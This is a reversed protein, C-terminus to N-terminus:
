QPQHQKAPLCTSQQMMVIHSGQLGGSQNPLWLMRTVGTLKKWLWGFLNNDCSQSYFYTKQMFIQTSVYNHQNTYIQIQALFNLFEYSLQFYRSQHGLKESGRTTPAWRLCHVVHRPITWGQLGVGTEGLWLPCTTAVQWSCDCM